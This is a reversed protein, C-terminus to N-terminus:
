FFTYCRSTKYVVGDGRVLLIRISYPSGADESNSNPSTDPISAVSNILEERSPIRCVLMERSRYETFPAKIDGFWIQLDRTFNEGSVTMMASSLSNDSKVINQKEKNNYHGDSIVFHTLCPFPTSLPATVQKEQQQQNIEDLHPPTWFTYRACETGVITWVAADKVEESWYAGFEALAQGSNQSTNCKRNATASTDKSHCSLSSVSTNPSETLIDQQNLTAPIFSEFNHADNLSSVRRRSHSITTRDSYMETSQQNHSLASRVQDESLRRKRSHNNLNTLSLNSNLIASLASATFSYNEAASAAAVLAAKPNLNIHASKIPSRKGPITKHAGVLDNLCALYTVPDNTMMPMMSDPNQQKLTNNTDPHQYTTSQTISEPQVIQLAIKHLQSVPDGLIEDGFEGGGSYSPEFAEPCRAGGVVTSAKDVKRIIMVPSVLGTTLCQLVVHQNYHIAMPQNTTNRLAITPPSPYPITPVISPCGIYDDASITENSPRNVHENQTPDVIWIIFPDWAGTKAVFCTNDNTTSESKQQHNQLRGPYDFISNENSISSVGLYKTSVTQSRIRNFLSIMTGHYICLEINKVSQRKKSPKSIVKIGRSSLTGLMVGNALQLKVLCEVKKRKEDADNIYLRKLVCRGGALAENKSNRYWDDNSVDSKKENAATPKDKKSGSVQTYFLNLESAKVNNNKYLPLAKNASQGLSSPQMTKSINEGSGTQGVLAGSLSYWDIRGSQTDSSEGSICITLSPPARVMNHADIFSINNTQPNFPSPPTWWSSGVLITMPPPCLFRKETGYSKQAVKSTMIIVTREGAEIPNEARLYTQIAPKMEAANAMGQMSRSSMSSNIRSSTLPSFELYKTTGNKENSVISFSHISHRHQQRNHTNTPQQLSPYDFVFQNQNYTPYTVIPNSVEYVPSPCSANTPLFSLAADLNPGSQEIQSHNKNKSTSLENSSSM